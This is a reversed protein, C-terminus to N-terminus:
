REREKWRKEVEDGFARLAVKDRRYYTGAIWRRKRFENVGRERGELKVSILNHDSMRLELKEEDIEMGRCVEYMRRNMLVMDIASKQNGRSWTYVGECKEDANMLNLNYNEMWKMVMKGNIDDRRGEELIRLHGNFDGLILLCESENKEIKGEIEKRMKNNVARGRGGKDVDFYVLIIKMEIGRCKGEIELIDKSRSKKKEFDVSEEERM